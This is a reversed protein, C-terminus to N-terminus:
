ALLYFNGTALYEVCRRHLCLRKLQERVTPWGRCYSLEQLITNVQQTQANWKPQLDHVTANRGWWQSVIVSTCAHYSYCKVHAPTGSITLSNWMKTQFTTVRSNVIACCHTIPCLCQCDNHKFIHLNEPNKHKLKQLASTHKDSIDKVVVNNSADTKTFYPTESDAALGDCILSVKQEQIESIM